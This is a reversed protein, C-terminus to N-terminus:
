SGLDSPVVGPKTFLRFKDLQDYLLRACKFFRLCKSREGTLHLAVSPGTKNGTIFRPPTAAGDISAGAAARLPVMFM